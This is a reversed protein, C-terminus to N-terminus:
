RSGDGQRGRKASAAAMDHILRKAFLDAKEKYPSPIEMASPEDGQFYIYEHTWEFERVSGRDFRLRTPKSMGLGRLADPDRIDLDTPRDYGPQGIKAEKISTGVSVTVFNRTGGEPNKETRSGLVYCYHLIAGPKDLDYDFPAFAQVVTGSPPVPPAIAPIGPLLPSSVENGDVNRGVHRYISTARGYAGMAKHWSEEDLSGLDSRGDLRAATAATWAVSTARHMQFRRPADLGLSNLEEATVAAYETNSSWDGSTHPVSPAVLVIAPPGPDVDLVLCELGRGAAAAAKGGILVESDEPPRMLVLDGCAPLPPAETGPDDSFRAQAVPAELNPNAKARRELEIEAALIRYAEQAPRRARELDAGTLKGLVFKVGNKAEAGPCWEETWPVVQRRTMRFRGPERLGAAALSPMSTLSLDGPEPEFAGRRTGPAVVVRPPGGDVGPLVSVVLGPVAVPGPKGPDDSLQPRFVVFSGTEPAEDPFPTRPAGSRAPPM